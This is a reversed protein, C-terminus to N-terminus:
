RPTLPLQRHGEIPKVDRDLRLIPLPSLLSDPLPTIPCLLVEVSWRSEMGDCKMRSQWYSFISRCIMFVSVPSYFVLWIISSMRVPSALDAKRLHAEVTSWCSLFCLISGSFCLVWRSIQSWIQWGDHKWVTIQLLCVLFLVNAPLTM